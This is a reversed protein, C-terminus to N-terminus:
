EDDAGKTADYKNGKYCEDCVESYAHKCTDFCDINVSARKRMDAGCNPCFNNKWDQKRGCNSCTYVKEGWAIDVASSKIWEGRKPEITPAEDIAMVVICPEIERGCEERECGCKIGCWRRILADADIMRM